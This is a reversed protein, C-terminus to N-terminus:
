QGDKKIELTGFTSASYWLILDIIGLPYDYEKQISLCMEDCDKFGWHEAMRVLHLDPKVCDLIGINRALHFCTVPGVHPLQALTQPSILRTSKFTGWDSFESTMLKAMKHISSAKLKNNCVPQIRSWATSFDENALIAYSGYANLLKDFFKGVAKASFGTAHVVWIYERFFFDPSVSEFKTSSIRTLEESYFEKAFIEAKQFYSSPGDDLNPRYKETGSGLNKHIEM